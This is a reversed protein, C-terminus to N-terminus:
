KFILDCTVKINLCVSTRYIPLNFYLEDL